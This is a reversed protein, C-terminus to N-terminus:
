FSSLFFCTRSTIVGLRGNTRLLGAGREVFIALLDIRSHPYVRGLESKVGLSLSGFPPNMLVADFKERTLDILCLGELADQAFLRGQYSSRAARTFETLANRLRAEIEQWRKTRGRLFDIQERYINRILAPLERETQLLVSLEPLGKMLFLTKEFLEADLEDMGAMLEKRLDIEAPAAVAAVANGRGIGPREVAKVGVDHWARQARLWLALSAIQAARPDIEVGYINHEIILRPTDRLFAAEDSYTESLPKLGAEPQTSTDL